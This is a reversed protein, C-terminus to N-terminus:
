DLCVCWGCNVLEIQWDYGPQSSEALAQLVIEWASEFSHASEIYNGDLLSM